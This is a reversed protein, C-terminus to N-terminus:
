QAEEALPAVPSDLTARERGIITCVRSPSLGAAEGIDRYSLGADSAARFMRARQAYADGIRKQSDELAARWTPFVYHVCPNPGDGIM